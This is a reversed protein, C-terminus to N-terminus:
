KNLQSLDLQLDKDAIPKYGSECYKQLTALASTASCLLIAALRLSSTKM